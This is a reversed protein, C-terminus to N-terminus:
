NCSSSQEKEEDERSKQQGPEEDTSQLYQGIGKLTGLSSVAWTAASMNAEFWRATTTFKRHHSHYYPTNSPQVLLSHSAYHVGDPKRPCLVYTLGLLSEQPFGPCLLNLYQHSLLINSTPHYIISQPQQYPLHLPFFVKIVTIVRNSSTNIVSYKTKPQMSSDSVTIYETDTSSVIVYKTCYKCSCSM